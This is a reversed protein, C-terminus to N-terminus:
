YQATMKSECVLLGTRYDLFLTKHLIICFYANVSVPMNEKISFLMNINIDKGLLKNTEAKM